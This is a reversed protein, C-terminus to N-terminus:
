PPLQPVRFPHAHGPLNLIDETQPCLLFSCLLAPAMGFSLTCTQRSELRQKVEVNRIHRDPETRYLNVIHGLMAGTIELAIAPQEELKPLRLQPKWELMAPQTGIALAHLFSAWSAKAACSGQPALIGDDASVFDLFTENSPLVPSLCRSHDKDEYAATAWEGLLADLKKKQMYPINNM